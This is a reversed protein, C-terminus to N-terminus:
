DFPGAATSGRVDGLGVGRLFSVASEGASAATRSGASVKAGAPSTVFMQM